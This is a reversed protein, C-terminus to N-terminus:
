KWIGFRFYTSTSSVLFFSYLAISLWTGPIMLKYVKGCYDHSSDTNKFVYPNIGTKKYQILKSYRVGTIPLCCYINTTYNSLFSMVLRNKIHINQKEKKMEALLYYANNWAVKAGSPLKGFLKVEIWGDDTNGVTIEVPEFGWEETGNDNEKKATFIFYKDGERVVGEEPLAFTQVNDTMIKGRVYMGPLLLGKKNEIEAHM